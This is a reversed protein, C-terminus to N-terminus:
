PKGTIPFLAGYWRCLRLDQRDSEPKLVAVPGYEFGDHLDRELFGYGAVLKEISKLRIFEAHTVKQGNYYCM